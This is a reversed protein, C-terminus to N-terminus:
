GLAVVEFEESTWMPSNPLDIFNAEDALLEAQAQRVAPNDGGMVELSDFWLEAVGDFPEPAAGNRKQFAQHLGALDATHAQVYRRIQLVEAREAVLPAHVTRWYTQFEELSLEPKRRLAFILKIM